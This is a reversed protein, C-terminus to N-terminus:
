SHSPAFNRSVFFTKIFGPAPSKLPLEALGNHDVTAHGLLVGNVFFQVFGKAPGQGPKAVNVQAALQTSSHTVVKVTTAAPHVPWVVAVTTSSKNNTDGSYTATIHHVGADMTAITFTAVGTSSLNAVNLVTEGDRFTVAGTPSNGTVTATFTVPQGFMSPNVSSALTTTSNSRVTASHTLLSYSFTGTSKGTNDFTASTIEGFKYSTTEVAPTNDDSTYAVQLSDLGVAGLTLKAREVPAGPSVSAFSQKRLDYVLTDWSSGAAIAGFLAPTSSDANRTVAFDDFQTTASIGRASIAAGTNTIAHSASDVLLVGPQVTPHFASPTFTLTQAANNTKKSDTASTNPAMGITTLNKTFDYSSSAALTSANSTYASATVAAPTLSFSESLGDGDFSTSYSTLIDNDFLWSAKEVRSIQGGFAYQTFTYRKTTRATALQYLLAPTSAATPTDVVVVPDSVLHSAKTPLSGIDTPTLAKEFGVTLSTPRIMGPNATPDASFMSLNAAAASAPNPAATSANIDFKQTTVNLTVSRQTTSSGDPSPQSTTIQASGLQLTINDVMGDSDSSTTMKSAVIQSLNWTESPVPILGGSLPVVSLTGISIAKGMTIANLLAPSSLGHPTTFTLQPISVKGANQSISFQFSSVPIQGLFAKATSEGPINDLSLFAHYAMLVRSELSELHATHAKAPRPSTTTKGRYQGRAFLNIGAM